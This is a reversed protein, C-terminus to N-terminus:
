TEPMEDLRRRAQAHYKARAGERRCEACNRTGNKRVYYGTESLVHGRACMGTRHAVMNPHFSRIVNARQTKPKMHDPNVCRRNDCAEHDLVMGEPVPGYKQEYAFVHAGIVRGSGRNFTGYGNGNVPGIWNWCGTREDVVYKTAFRESAPKAKYM